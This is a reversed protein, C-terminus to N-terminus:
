KEVTVFNISLIVPKEVPTEGSVKVSSLKDLTSEGAILKGFAAYSGDLFSADGNCIFFQSSASDNNNSRAMSIVGKTHSLNNEVGNIEFEGKITEKSGGMGTGQPDGGQIMFDKVIRHFTLGDYFKENVLKQFNAVTIPATEPYLELLMIDGTQMEIKIYNTIENTEKFNMKDVTGEKTSEKKQETGCGGFLLIGLLLSITLLKKMKKREEEM